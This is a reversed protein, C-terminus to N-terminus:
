DWFLRRVVGFCGRGCFPLIPTTPSEVYVNTPLSYTISTNRTTFSLGPTRNAL